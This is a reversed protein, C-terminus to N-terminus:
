NWKVYAPRSRARTAPRDAPNKELLEMILDSLEDPVDANLDIPPPPVDAALSALIAMADNGSFPRQGTAAEYLVSGLSFLDSRSDLNPGRAQEPSM